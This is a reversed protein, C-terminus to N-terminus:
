TLFTSPLKFNNVVHVSPLLRKKGLSLEGLSKDIIKANFNGELFDLNSKPM